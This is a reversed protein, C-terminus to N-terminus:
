SNDLQSFLIDTRSHPISCDEICGFKSERQIGLNMGKRGTNIYEDNVTYPSSGPLGMYWLIM